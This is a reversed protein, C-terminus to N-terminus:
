DLNFGVSIPSDKDWDKKRFYKKGDFEFEKIKKLADIVEVEENNRPDASFKLGGASATAYHYIKM